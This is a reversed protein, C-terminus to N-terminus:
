WLWRRNQADRREQEKRIKIRGAMSNSVPRQIEKIAAKPQESLALIFLGDPIVRDGHASRAGTDEDLTASSQISGDDQFNYDEYEGVTSEDYIILAKHKPNVRLGEALAIRLELLLDYKTERNSYWGRRKQRPRYTIREDTLTYVFDYGHWYIRKDFSGGPGNAEWILYPRRTLGGVWKCIAVVQDAFSEPPTNPCTFIGVKEKTNVDYVGAVSNSAGTGLSIDCGVIYNHRQNPRGDQLKGWWSFRQRGGESVFHANEVKGKDNLDFEIEGKYNAPKVVEDRIQLCVDSDFFQDGSGAPDMDLNMAIDRKDRRRCQKDYWPSHWKGSKGDAVFTVDIAKGRSFLDVELESLKFPKDQEIKDFCGPFKQRYYDIDSITIINLDPSRYLGENRVPNRWWPLLIVPIKGSFRLKAFPHGRGYFHTSGYIVCDTTDSVSNGISKALPALVRGYEDVFIATRRDGASLNENTSEGDIVSNNDLNAYHMHTKDTEPRMSMPLLHDQLYLIKYFLAKQDGKKDVLEEKRSCMLFMSDPVLWWYLYFMATIICTLGEGRSKDILLDHGTNIADKVAEIAADQAPRTIFPM